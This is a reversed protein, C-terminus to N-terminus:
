IRYRCIAGMAEYEYEAERIIPLLDGNNVAHSLTSLFKLYTKDEYPPSLIGVFVHVPEEDMSNFYLGKDSRMIAIMFERAQLTRVHPIAIGRGMATTAKM